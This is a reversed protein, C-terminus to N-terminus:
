AVDADLSKKQTGKPPRALPRTQRCSTTSALASSIATGTAPCLHHRRLHRLRRPRRRCRSPPRSRTVSASAFAASAHTSASLTTTAVTASTFSSSAISTSACSAAAAPPPTQPPSPPPSSPPPAPPPPSPPPPVPPLPSPPPSAVSSSTSISYRSVTTGISSSPLASFPRSLPFTWKTGTHLHLDILVGGGTSAAVRTSAERAYTSHRHIYSSM